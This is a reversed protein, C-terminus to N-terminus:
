HCSTNNGGRQNLYKMQESTLCACGTSTTYQQPQSCCQPDFKTNYFFNLENEPLPVAGGTNNKLPSYPDSYANNDIINEFTELIKNKNLFCFASFTIGIGFILAAALISIINFKITINPISSM